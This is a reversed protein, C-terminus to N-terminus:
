QFFLSVAVPFSFLVLKCNVIDVIVSHDHSRVCEDMYVSSYVLVSEYLM